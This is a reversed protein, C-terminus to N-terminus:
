KRVAATVERALIEALAVQGAADPHIYDRYGQQKERMLRTIEHKTDVYPLGLKSAVAKLNEYGKEPKGAQLEPLRFHHVLVVSAGAERATEVLREVAALSARVDEANPEPVATLDEKEGLVHYRFAKPVYLTFLEELALLPTRTPLERGLPAYTPADGADESNLVIVVVDAGFLGFRRVYELQNLPGWSGCSINGVVVPRGLEERLLGPLLTTALESQDSPSGGNVVSDGIVMVRLEAPDAKEAPFEPSRMSYSNYSVDNGFRRYSRGALPLYEIQPDAKFLPPDGMGLAYRAALEGGVAGVVLLVASGVLFWRLLRRGWGRRERRRAPGQQDMPVPQAPDQSAPDRPQGPASPTPPPPTAPATEAM